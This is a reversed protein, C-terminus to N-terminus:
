GSASTSGPNDNGKIRRGPAYPLRVAWRQKFQQELYLLDVGEASIDVHLQKLM